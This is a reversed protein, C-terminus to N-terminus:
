ARGALLEALTLCLQSLVEVRDRGTLALALQATLLGYKTDVAYRLGKVEMALYRERRALENLAPSLEVKANPPTVAALEALLDMVSATLVHLGSFCLYQGARLGPVVLEQEAQTPTPKEIIREIEFLDATGPARKGGVAGFYPLLTERTPVVASVSCEHQQAAAVLQEVCSREATSVFVHDSILHLFPRGGVFDRARLIADGYGRPEDQEAFVVRNALAGLAAAYREQDGPCVVVCVEEVGGALAAGVVIALLSRTEGDQDVLTQVPLHRQGPGAATVVARTIEM